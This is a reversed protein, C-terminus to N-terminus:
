KRSTAVPFSDSCCSMVNENNLVFCFTIITGNKRPRRKEKTRNPCTATISSLFTANLRKKKRKEFAFSALLDM